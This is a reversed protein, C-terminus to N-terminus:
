VVETTVNQGVLLNSKREGPVARRTYALSTPSPSLAAICTMPRPASRQSDIAYPLRDHVFIPMSVKHSSVKPWKSNSTRHINDIGDGYHDMSMGGRARHQDAML